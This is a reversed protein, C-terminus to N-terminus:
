QDITVIMFLKLLTQTTVEANEHQRHKGPVCVLNWVCIPVNCPPIHFSSLSCNDVIRISGFLHFSSIGLQLVKSLFYYYCTGSLSGQGETWEHILGYCRPHECQLRKRSEEECVNVHYANEEIGLHFFHQLVSLQFRLLYTKGLKGWDTLMLVTRKIRHNYEQANFFFFHMNGLWKTDERRFVWINCLM